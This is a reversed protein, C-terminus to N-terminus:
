KWKNPKTKEGSESLNEARQKSRPKESLMAMDQEGLKRTYSHEEIGDFNEPHHPALRSACKILVSLFSM